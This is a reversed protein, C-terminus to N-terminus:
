INHDFIHQNHEQSHRNRPHGAGKRLLQMERVLLRVQHVLENAQGHTIGTPAQAAAAAAANPREFPGPVRTSAPSTSASPRGVSLAGSPFFNPGFNALIGQQQQLFAFSQQQFSAGTGGTGSETANRLERIARKENEIEVQLRKYELSRRGALRQAAKLAKIVRQHAAVLRNTQRATPDDGVRAELIQLDLQARELRNQVAEQKAQQQLAAIERRVENRARRLDALEDALARTDRGAARAERIRQQVSEIAGRLFNRLRIDFRIDDSLGETGTAIAVRAERQSRRSEIARIFAADRESAAAQIRDATREAEATAALADAERRDLITQIAEDAARVDNAADQVQSQNIEGARARRINRQLRRNADARIQRLIALERQENGQAQAIALQSQLNLATQELGGQAEVKEAVAKLKAQLKDLEEAISAQMRDFISEAEQADDRFRGVLGHFADGVIGMRSVFARTPNLTNKFLDVLVGAAREGGPVMGVLEGSLDRVSGALESITFIGDNMGQFALRFIDVTQTAPGTALQGLNRALDAAEDKTESLTGKFTRTRAEAEEQATGTERAADAMREYGERQQEVIRIVGLAARRSFIQTLIALQQERNFRRLADALIVFADPRLRGMEDRLDEMSLGAEALGEDVQKGGAALRILAQRLSGAGTTASLGSESLQLILTNAGELSLGLSDAAPAVLALAQAFEAANGQTFKMGTAVADAVRESDSATLNFADLVRDVEQVSTKLEEGSAATLLLTGRAARMSEDLDFGSRALLNIATAAETATTLPIDLDRGLLVAARSASELEEASAHTAVEIQHMQENFEDAEELSKFLVTAAVAAAAIPANMGAAAGRVGAMSAAETAIHASAHRAATAHATTAVAAETEAAAKRGAAAAGATESETLVAQAAAAQGTAATFGQMQATAAATAPSPPIAGVGALQSRIQAEAKARFAPAVPEIEVFAVGLPEPM